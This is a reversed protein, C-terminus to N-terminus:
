RRAKAARAAIVRRVGQLPLAISSMYSCNVVREGLVWESVGRAQYDRVLDNYTRDVLTPSVRELAWCFWGTATGWYPGNQFEDKGYLTQDWWEGMPIQRIQGKEVIEEYHDRFYQAIRDARAAPAVDLWVAYASGWIDHQTCFHTAARYLGTSEDWFVENVATTLRAAVAREQAAAEARGAAALMEAYGRRARIALLSTYLCAGKKRVADTFGWPCREWDLAPDIWALGNAPNQPMGALCRALTALTKDDLFANDGTQRWTEYALCVTYVSGDLIPRLSRTPEHRPITIIEGNYRINDVGIGEPSVADLFFQACPKLHARDILEAEVMMEYDRLWAGEYWSGTQPAYVVLDTGNTMRRAAKPVLVRGAEEFWRAVEPLTRATARAHVIRRLAQLPLAANALYDPCSTENGFTRENVGRTRYDRVLDAFTKDVLAPDVRELAWCFWGTATGWFQGNQYFDKKKWSTDDWYVGAPLHRIQGNQVLGDYHDRFYRAIRAAQRETAVDLWVAYASGWIDHQRCRVTAARFLGEKEDWFVDKAKKALASAKLRQAVAEDPRRAERLLYALERRARIELLTMFFLNGTKGVSDTFGWPCRERAHAPDIWPLGDVHPMADLMRALTDLVEKKLWKKNGTQRWTEYILSTVYTYGDMVPKAGAKDYGPRRCITGDFKICDVGEGAPSVASLFLDAIAAQHAKPVLGGELTMVYDRLWAARYWNGAQPAYVTRGDSMTRSAGRVMEAGKKEFWAVYDTLTEAGRAAGWAFLVALSVCHVAKM